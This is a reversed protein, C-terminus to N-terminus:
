ETSSEGLLHFTMARGPIVVCSPVACTPKAAVGLRGFSPAIRHGVMGARGDRPGPGRRDFVTGRTIRDAVDLVRPNYQYRRGGDAQVSLQPKVM